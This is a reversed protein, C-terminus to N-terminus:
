WSGGQNHKVTAKEAATLYITYKDQEMVDYNEFLMVGDRSLSWVDPTYRCNSGRQLMVVVMTSDISSPLPILWCYWTMNRITEIIM